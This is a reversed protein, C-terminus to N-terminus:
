QPPGAAPRVAASHTKGAQDVWRIQTKAGPKVRLILSTLDDPSSVAHGAFAVIVDGPVLGAKAAPSSSVVAEVLAGSAAAGSADAASVQVGLFATPGVHVKASSRGAQIQKGISVARNIPIAFGERSVSELEFGSSAATNIGIVRRSGDLLPGGSDGPELAANTKILGTLRATGGRGDNVTITEDLGTITGTTVSPSGGLGGANGVATVRQGVKLRSSSGITAPTLGSANKLKLLAVDDAVDYGLVSAAYRKGTSVDTVRITTAGRIVHNNTLALGSSSIIIGTGAAATGQYALNTTVDVVGTDVRSAARTAAPQLLLAGVGVAVASAAAAAALIRWRRGTTRTAGTM